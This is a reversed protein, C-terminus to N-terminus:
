DARGNRDLRALLALVSANWGDPGPAESRLIRGTTEGALPPIGKGHDNRIVVGYDATEIMEVDNPADGLAIATDRDLDGMIGAM